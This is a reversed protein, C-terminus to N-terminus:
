VTLYPICIAPTKSSSSSPIFQFVPSSHQPPILFNYTSSNRLVREAGINTSNILDLLSPPPQPQVQLICPFFIFNKNSYRFYRPVPPTILHM